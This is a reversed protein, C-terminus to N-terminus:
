LARLRQSDVVGDGSLQLRLLKDAGLRGAHPHPSVGGRRREASRCGPEWWLLLVPWKAARESVRQGTLTGAPRTFLESGAPFRALVRFGRTERWWGDRTREPVVFVGTTDFPRRTASAKFHRLVERLLGWDSNCWVALGAMDHELCSDVGSWFRSCFANLGTPDACADVDFGRGLRDRLWQEAASFGAPSFQWDGRDRRDHRWRSLGDSLGNRIGPIHRAAVELGHEQRVAYLQRALPELLPSATDGSNIVKATVTNDTRVLVRAPALESGWRELALVATLLERYNSSKAPARLGREFAWAARQLRWWAGGGYGSADTTIVEVQETAVGGAADLEADSQGIAGRWFGNPVSLNSLYLRQGRLRPLAGRWWELDAALGATRQVRVGRGWRERTTSEARPEEVFADRARYARRLHLQGGDAVQAVWQLRGILAAVDRRGVDGDASGLFDEIERVLRDCRSETVTVTQEMTDVLFGLIELECAPSSRKSAKDELGLDALVRLVSAYQEECEAVSLEASHACAFDDMYGLVCEFTSYDAARGSCYRLGRRNLIDKLIGAWRQQVAPSQAGGFGLFRYRFYNGKVDRYGMLESHSQEYPWNLFADTLDFASLRCGPSMGGVAEALTDYRCVLPVCAPNVGSSTADVITRWKEREPRWVGGLSQVVWPTYLLPGEVFGRALMREHEAQLREPHEVAGGYHRGHYQEPWWKLVLEYGRRVRELEQASVGAEELAALHVRLGRRYVGDADDHFTAQRSAHAADYGGGEGRALAADAGAASSSVCLEPGYSSGVSETSSQGRFTTSGRPEASAGPSVGSTPPAVGGDPCKVPGDLLGKRQALLQAAAASAGQCDGGSARAEDGGRGFAVGCARSPPHLVLVRRGLEARRRRQRSAARCVAYTSKSGQFRLRSLAIQDWFADRAWVRWPVKPCPLSIDGGGGPDCFEYILLKFDEARDADCAHEPPMAPLQGRRERYWNILEAAMRRLVRGGAGRSVPARVVSPGGGHGDHLESLAEFENRLPLEAGMEPARSGHGSGVPGAVAEPRAGGERAISEGGGDGSAGSSAGDASSEAGSVCAAVGGGDAPGPRARGCVREVPVSLSSPSNVGGCAKGGLIDRTPSGGEAKLPRSVDSEPCECPRGWARLLTERAPSAPPKTQLGPIQGEKGIIFSPRSARVEIPEGTEDPVEAISALAPRWAADGRLERATRGVRWRADEGSWASAASFARRAEREAPRGGLEDTAVVTAEQRERAM